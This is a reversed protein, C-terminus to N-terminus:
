QSGESAPDSHSAALERLVDVARHLERPGGNQALDAALLLKLGRDNLDLHPAAPGVVHLVVNGRDRPVERLLYDSALDALDDVAVYGEVVDGAALGSHPHSLGSRRIRRDARLDPLDLRAAEFCRRDGRNRLAKSLMRGVGAPDDNEAAARLLDRLRARARSRDPASHQRLLRPDDSAAALLAWASRESLPRGPTRSEGLRVLDKEDIVWRGGIREAPLSGDQIRQHVRQPVVGLRDAADVVSIRAM